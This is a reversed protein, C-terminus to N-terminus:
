KKKKALHPYLLKVYSPVVQQKDGDKLIQSKSKRLISDEDILKQSKEGEIKKKKENEVVGQDNEKKVVEEDSNNEVEDDIEVEEVVVEDVTKKAKPSLPTLVKKSRLEIANCNENKLNEKTNGSFGGKSQHVLKQAMQGIQTELLKRSAENNKREAEQIKKMEEFNGQTMKMFNIMTEELASPKRQQQQQANPLLPNLTNNNSYSLNPHKNFGPNYYPNQRQFNVYNAEVSSGEPVCEGNAHGEGCLDCRIAAVQQQKHALSFGQFEKTLAEIKKNMSAQNALISTTDSVGYVGRKKKEADARYENQAMSEILAEVEHDTKNKLSGGGSADLFMRINHTLGETFIQFYQKESLENNPCRKLMLTFREWADYLSEADGQKFTQIEKKDWYKLMLFYKELFKLELEEWSQITGSPITLVL